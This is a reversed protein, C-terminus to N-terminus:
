ARTNRAFQESNSSFLISVQSVISSICTMQSCRCRAYQDKLYSLLYWLSSNSNKLQFLSTTTNNARLIDFSDNLERLSDSSQQYSFLEPPPILISSLEKTYNIVCHCTPSTMCWQGNLCGFMLATGHFKLEITRKEMFFGNRIRFNSSRSWKASIIMASNSKDSVDNRATVFNDSEGTPMKSM